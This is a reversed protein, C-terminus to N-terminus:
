IYCSLGDSVGLAEIVRLCLRARSGPLLPSRAEREQHATRACRKREGGGGGGGGGVFFIRSGGRVYLSEITLDGTQACLM